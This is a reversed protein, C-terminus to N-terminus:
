ISWEGDKFIQVVKNDYTTAVVSLDKTGFMFDVHIISDNLDYSKVEEQTLNSYNNICDNFARGVALHCCANEDFLTNYFLIGTKNVPSSFPVLAVEGLMSAGEDTGIMKELIEKELDNRAIVETIKGGVFRFGFKDVLNGMYSLPKSSYVVGNASTKIPSTFCEETPINPNYYVNDLTYSGGGEFHIDQHLDIKIDTKSENSTFHLTKINLNDLTERKNLIDENHNKWNIIPDGELRSCTAIANWLEKVGAKTSLNPFVKKAWAENPYAAICWQYKNDMEDNYKKMALGRAKRSAALKSVDVGSLANPDESSIVIYAPLTKCIHEQKAIEHDLIECLTAEKQYKYHLKSINSNSWNISVSKAGKKYAAEVVYEVFSAAHVPANIIVDQKKKINVGTTVILKAYKKLDSKKM